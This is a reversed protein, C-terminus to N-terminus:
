SDDHSSIVKVLMLVEMSVNWCVFAQIWLAACCGPLWLHSCLSNLVKDNLGVVVNGTKINKWKFGRFVYSMFTWFYFTTLIQELKCLSAQREFSFVPETHKRCKHFLVKNPNLLLKFYIKKNKEFCHMFTIVILM